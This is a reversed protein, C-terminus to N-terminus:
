LILTFFPAAFWDDFLMDDSNFVISSVLFAAGETALFSVATRKSLVIYHPVNVHLEILRKSTEPSIVVRGLEM